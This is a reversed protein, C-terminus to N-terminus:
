FKYTVIFYFINANYNQFAQSGTLYSTSTGGPPTTNVVYPCAPQTAYPTSPCDFGIDSYDYKEYAYGATLDFNKTVGYTGKLNFTTRKTNDFNGIPYLSNPALVTGAQTTFDATGNTKDYTLSVTMKLRDMPVFDAAAGVQWAEDKNKAGWTYVNSFPSGTPPAGPDPNGSGSGDNRHISNYETYEYDGYVIFRFSRPDGYTLNLYYEQRQDDTRGLVTDKYDNKKYIIEGGVDVLAVVPVDAILKVMHQNVNAVDFRRVYADIPNDSNGTYHSRRQMYQYRVRFDAYEYTGKWQLFVRDETSEDFDVRERNIHNYDYGAFFRNQRDFRWDGEIGFNNRDYSFRELECPPGCGLSSSAPPNFVVDTNNNDKKYYNYYIRSNWDRAPASTLSLSATTDKSEGNFKSTSAGTSPFTNGADLITPLITTDSTTKSYTLRGAITSGYPLGRWNGNLALRQFDNDPPLVTTDYSTPKGPAFFPNSWNLFENDNTFKSGTWALSLQGQPGQWGAELTVNNTKYQVPQPLEIFGNGPSTGLAGSITRIGERKVQNADVRFYFPSGASIEAFGGYDKRTYSSDFGAWNAPNLSPFSGTLVSGGAGSYPTLAGPGSGFNHRLENDYL